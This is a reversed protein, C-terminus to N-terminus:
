KEGTYQYAFKFKLTVKNEIHIDLYYYVSNYLLYFWFKRFHLNSSIENNLKPLMAMM